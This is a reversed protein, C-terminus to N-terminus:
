NSHLLQASEHLSFLKVVEEQVLTRPFLNGLEEVFIVGGNDLM